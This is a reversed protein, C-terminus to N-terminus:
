SVFMLIVSSKPHRILLRQSATLLLMLNVMLPYSHILPLTGLAWGGHWGGYWGVHWGVHRGISVM